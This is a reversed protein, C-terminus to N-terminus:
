DCEVGCYFKDDKWQSCLGVGDRFVREAAVVAFGINFSGHHRNREPDNPAVLAARADGGFKIVDLM